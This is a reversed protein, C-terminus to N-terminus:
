SLSQSLRNPPKKDMLWFDFTREVVDEEEATGLVIFGDKQFGRNVM